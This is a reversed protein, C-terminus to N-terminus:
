TGNTKEKQIFEKYYQWPIKTVKPYNNYAEKASVLEFGHHVVADDRCRKADFCFCRDHMKAYFTRTWAFM